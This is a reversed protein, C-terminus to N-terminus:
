RASDVAARDVKLHYREGTKGGLLAGILTGLAVAALVIIGGTALTGEDLPLRPLVNLESLVNYESGFIAGAVGLAVTMLLGFLWVGIGQRAGDFRSLRGAVYGGAYYALFGILVLLAGGVIGITDASQAAETDSVESLGLAAGAAAVIATLIVGLGIAVLWGYFAAGPKFGGYVDHQRDRAEQVVGRHLGDREHPRGEEYGEQLRHEQETTRAM